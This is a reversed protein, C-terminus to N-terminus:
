ADREPEDPFEAALIRKIEDSLAPAHLTAAEWALTWDMGFYRHIGVNRFAIIRGWPVHPNREQIGTPIHNAAEGIWILKLLVTSRIVDSGAFTDADVGSLLLEIESAFQVIDHLYDETRQEDRQM